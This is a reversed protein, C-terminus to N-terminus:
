QPPLGAAKRVENALRNFENRAEPDETAFWGASLFKIIKEADQASMM